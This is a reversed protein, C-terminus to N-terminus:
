VTNYKQTTVALDHTCKAARAAGALGEIAGVLVAFGVCLAAGTAAGVGRGVLAGEGTGVSCGVCSAPRSQVRWQSTIDVAVSTSFLLSMLVTSSGWYKESERSSCLRVAAGVLMWRFLM